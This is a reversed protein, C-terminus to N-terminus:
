GSHWSPFEGKREKNDERTIQRGEKTYHKAQKKKKMHTVM